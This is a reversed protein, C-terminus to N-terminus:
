MVPTIEEGAQLEEPNLLLVSLLMILIGSLASILVSLGGLDEVKFYVLVACFVSLVAAFVYDNKGAPNVSKEEEKGTYVTLVGFFLTSVLLHSTKVYGPFAIDYEDLLLALLFFLLSAQFLINISKRAYFEPKKIVVKSTEKRLKERVVRWLGDALLLFRRYPFYLVLSLAGFLMTTLLFRERLGPFRLPHFYPHYHVISSILLLAIFLDVINRRAEFLDM